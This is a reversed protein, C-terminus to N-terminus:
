VFTTGQYGLQHPIDIFTDLLKIFLCIIYKQYIFSTIKLLRGIDSLSDPITMSNASYLSLELFVSLYGCWRHTSRRM